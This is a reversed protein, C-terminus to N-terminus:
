LESTADDESARHLELQEAGDLNSPVSLPEREAPRSLLRQKGIEEKVALGDGRLTEHPLQPVFALRRRVADPGDVGGHGAESVREPPTDLSGRGAVGEDELRVLEIEVSKAGEECLCTGSLVCADSGVEEPLGVGQPPAAREIPEVHRERRGLRSREFLQTERHDFVSDLDVELAALV